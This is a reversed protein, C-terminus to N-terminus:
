FPSTATVVTIDSAGATVVTLGVTCLVKYEYTAEAISAKMIAITPTTATIADDLTITGAATTNVIVAVLVCPITSVTTTTATSIHTYKYNDRLNM